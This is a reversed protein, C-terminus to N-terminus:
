FSYHPCSYSANVAFYIGRGWLGDESYAINLGDKKYLEHPATKRTGHWLRLCRPKVKNKMQLNKM